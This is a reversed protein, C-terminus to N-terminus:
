WRIQVRAARTSGVWDFPRGHAARRVFHAAGVRQDAQVVRRDVAQAGRQALAQHLREVARQGIVRHLAITTVPLSRANEPPASTLSNPVGLAARSGRRGASIAANSFEGLGTTAAIAPTHM